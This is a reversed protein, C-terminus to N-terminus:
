HRSKIDNILHLDHEEGSPSEQMLFDEMNIGIPKDKPAQIYTLSQSM